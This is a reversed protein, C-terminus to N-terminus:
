KKRVPSWAASGENWPSRTLNRQGSGDANMVYIEANGDRLSGFAIRRGDPSWAPAFDRMPKRMLNRQRSGDANMVHIGRSGAFAIRRGDPSWAPALDRGANRTLRRLGGGDANVVYIESNGDRESDFAIRRGDPSWTFDGVPGRTVNREGSGDVNVVYASGGGQGRTFALRRGDPSWLPQRGRRVLRVQRSGDANMVYVEPRHTRPRGRIRIRDRDRVFAIRQGDPSWAPAFDRAPNRTLRRQGSGDANVVYIESNGDRMSEFAITRGDPSWVFGFIWANLTLWRQGSGDANAVYLPSPGPGISSTFAVRRGARPSGAALPPEACLLARGLWPIYGPGRLSVVAVRDGEESATVLTQYDLIGGLHGLSRGCALDTSFIGLGTGFVGYIKATDKMAGLSAASLIRGSLLASYFRSLDHANSVIAGAAWPLNPNSGADDLDALRRTTPLETRSLRLPDLVRQELEEAYSRGTVKEIVLGLAIYNTNSYRMQSGPRFALPKSAAFRLSNSPSTSPSREAEELWEPYETINALGSRHGLLHRITIEGGRAVVGPVHEDLTSDLRLKGEQMLQFVITATFTKTVSGIRFRQDAKPRRTGTTAAYEKGGVSVFVIVSKAGPPMERAVRGVPPPASSEEGGAPAPAGGAPAGLAAMAVIGVAILRHVRGPMVVRGAEYRGPAWAFRGENAPSRTLNRQGSGDANMIYIDTNGDRTSRFAISRGDPSWAPDADFAPNRTLNRQGSGNANMVYVESNGDRESVFAIKRGDPSWAPAAYAGMPKPTLNRVGSGDANVVYVGLRKSLQVFAIKRGDPSWVPDSALGAGFGQGAALKSTLNRLGSGDSNVVYLNFCYDPPAGCGGRLLDDVVPGGGALFALKRGDPSWALSARKGNWLRTLARHETGDANMVYIHFRWMFAITRGDPSWAPDSGRRALRLRFSGDANVVYIGATCAKSPLGGGTQRGSLLVSWCM